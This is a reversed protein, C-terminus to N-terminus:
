GIKSFSNKVHVDNFGLVGGAGDAGIGLAVGKSIQDDGRTLDRHVGGRASGGFTDGGLRLLAALVHAGDQLSGTGAKVFNDLGGAEQRIHAVEGGEVLHVGPIEGGLGGAAAHGHPFPTSQSISAM